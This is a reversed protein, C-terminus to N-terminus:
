SSPAAQVPNKARVPEEWQVGVVGWEEWMKPSRGGGREGHERKLAREQATLESLAAPHSPSSLDTAAVGSEESLDTPGVGM